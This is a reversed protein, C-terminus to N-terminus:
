FVHARFSAIYTLFHTVQVPLAVMQQVEPGVHFNQASRDSEAAVPVWESESATNPMENGYGAM